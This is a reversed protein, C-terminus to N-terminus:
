TENKSATKQMTESLKTKAEKSSNASENTTGGGGGASFFGIDFEASGSVEWQKTKSAEEVIESSDKTTDSSERTTETATLAELQRTGKNRRM